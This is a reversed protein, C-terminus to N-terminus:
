MKGRRMIKLFPAYLVIKTTQVKHEKKPMNFINSFNAILSSIYIRVLSVLSKMELM